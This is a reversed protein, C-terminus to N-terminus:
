PPVEGAPDESDAGAKAAGLLETLEHFEAQLETQKQVSEALQKVKSRIGRAKNAVREFLAAEKKTEAGAESKIPNECLIKLDDDSFGFVEMPDFLRLEDGAKIRVAAEETQNVYFWKEFEQLRSPSPDPVRLRQVTKIPKLKLVIKGKGTTWDLYKKSRRRELNNYGFTKFNDKLGAQIEEGLLKARDCLDANILPLVVLRRLDWKPFTKFHKRNSINNIGGREEKDYVKEVGFMEKEEIEYYEPESDYDVLQEEVEEDVLKLEDTKAEEVIVKDGGLDTEVDFCFDDTVETEKAPGSGCARSFGRFDKSAEQTGGYEDAKDEGIGLENALSTNLSRIADEDLGAAGNKEPKRRFTEPLRESVEPQKGKANKERIETDSETCSPSRDAAKRKKKGKSKAIEAEIEDLEEEFPVAKEKVYKKHKKIQAESATAVQGEELGSHKRWEKSLFSKKIERRAMFDTGEFGMEIFLGSGMITASIEGPKKNLDYTESNWFDRIHQQDMVPDHTIAFFIPSSKLWSIADRFGVSKPDKDNLYALVNSRLEFKPPPPPKPDMDFKTCALHRYFHEKNGLEKPNLKTVSNYDLQIRASGKSVDPCLDVDEKLHKGCM